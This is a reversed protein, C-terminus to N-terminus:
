PMPRGPDLYFRRSDLCRTTGLVQLLARAAPPEPHCPPPLLLLVPTLARAPCRCPCCPPPLVRPLLASLMAPLRPLLLVLMLCATLLLAGLMCLQWGSTTGGQRWGPAPLARGLHRTTLQLGCAALASTSSGAPPLVVPIGPLCVRQRPGRPGAALPLRRWLLM